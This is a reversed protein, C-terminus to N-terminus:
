AALGALHKRARDIDALADRPEDQEVIYWEVGAARGAEVIRPWDLVGEGAPADRTEPQTARDKMHLLRVRDAHAAILDAPDRGGVSAWLVDIELDVDPPLADMLEDWVTTGDLPEFEFTHNHYGLRIGRRALREAIAGLEGAVRRVDSPTARDAGPLSPVVLRPCGLTELRRAIQDEDRRLSDISEHSSVPALGADSLARRITEPDMAPLGALEVARYGAEAVARLTGDLDEALLRRVTYLQLAIQDDRM